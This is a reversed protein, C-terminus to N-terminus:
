RALVMFCIRLWAGPVLVCCTRACCIQRWQPPFPEKEARACDSPALLLHPCRRLACAIVLCWSIRPSHRKESSPALSYRAQEERRVHLVCGQRSVSKVEKCFLCASFLFFSEVILNLHHNKRKKNREKLHQCGAFAGHHHMVCSHKTHTHLAVGSLNHQQWKKM